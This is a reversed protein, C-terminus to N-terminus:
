AIQTNDQVIFIIDVWVWKYKWTKVIYTWVVIICAICHDFLIHILYFDTFEDRRNWLMCKLTRQFIFDWITCYSSIFRSWLSFLMGSPFNQFQFRSVIKEKERHQAHIFWKRHLNVASNTTLCNLLGLSCILWRIGSRQEEGKGRCRWTALLNRFSLVGIKTTKEREGRM